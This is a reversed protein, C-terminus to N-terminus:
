RNEGGTKSPAPSTEDAVGITVQEAAYMKMKQEMKADILVRTGVKLDSKTAPKQSKSYKTTKQLMVLVKKGSQDQIQVHDGEIATVTGILRTVEAQACLVTATIGLMAAFLSFRLRMM